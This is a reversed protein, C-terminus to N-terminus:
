PKWIMRSNPSNPVLAPTAPEGIGSRLLGWRCGGLNEGFQFEIRLKGCHKGVAPRQTLSPAHFGARIRRQMVLIPFNLLQNLADLFLSGFWRNWAGVWFKRQQRVTLLGRTADVISCILAASFLAVVARSASLFTGASQGFGESILQRFGRIFIGSPERILRWTALVQPDLM